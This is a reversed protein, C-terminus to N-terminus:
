YRKLGIARYGGSGNIAATVTAMTNQTLAPLAIGDDDAGDGSADSSDYDGSEDDVNSGLRIGAKITHSTGGYETGTLPADSYDIIVPPIAPCGAGDSGVYAGAFQTPITALTSGTSLNVGYYQEKEPNKGGAYNFAYFDGGSVWVSMWDGAIALNAIPTANFSPTLGSFDISYVGTNGAEATYAIDGSGDFAFDGVSIPISAIYTNIITPPSTATDIEILEGSGGIIWFHGTGPHIDGGMLTAPMGSVTGLSESVGVADVKYIVGGDSIYLVNEQRHFGMVTNANGLSLTNGTSATQTTLNLIDAIYSNGATTLDAHFLDTSACSFPTLPVPASAITIQYDEVEGDSALLTAREDHSTGTNDTLIDSTFRFRAFTTGATGTTISTWNLDNSISGNTITTSAYETASFSGDKNFDVWAHLTGSGTAGSFNSGPINYSTDGETLKPFSSLSDEDDSGTGDDGSIGDSGANTSTAVTNEADPPVTGLYINSQIIHQADGYSGPADGHDPPRYNNFTCEVDANNKDINLSFGSGSITTSVPTYDQKNICSVSDLQYGDRLIETVSVSSTTTASASLNVYITESETTNISFPSTPNTITTPSDSVTYTFDFNGGDDPSAAKKITVQGLVEIPVLHTGTYCKSSGDPVYSNASCAIHKNTTAYDLVAQVGVGGPIPDCSIDQWGISWTTPLEGPGSGQSIIDGCSDGDIDTFPNSPPATTRQCQAEESLVDNGSSLIFAGVDYRNGNTSGGLNITMFAPFSTGSICYPPASTLSVNDVVIDQATCLYSGGYASPCAGAQVNLPLFISSFLLCTFFHWIFNAISNRLKM